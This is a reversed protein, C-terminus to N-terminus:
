LPPLKYSSVVGSVCSGIGKEPRKLFVQVQPTCVYACMHVCDLSAFVYIFYM